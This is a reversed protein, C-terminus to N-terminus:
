PKEQAAVIAKYRPDERLSSLDVMAETQYKTAGLHMCTALTSLAPGRQRLLEQIRVKVLQSDIDAAHLAESRVLLAPVEASKGSKMRYLALLMWGPGDAPSAELQAAQLVAARAYAAGKQQGSHGLVSLSDGLELWALSDDPDLQVAELSAQLAEAHRGLLRLIDTRAQLAASTRTLELSKDITNLAESLRGLQFLVTGLMTFCIARRPAVAAAAQFSELAHTYQGHLNYSIGLEHYASWYNPRARLLRRYAQEADQWRNLGTYFQAQTRMTFPNSPDLALAQSMQDLANGTLGTYNLYIALATHGRVSEPDLVLATEANARGLTLFSADHRNGYLHLYTGALRAHAEAFHPDLDVALRYKEIAADVGADNPQKRLAEATQFATFAQANDTGTHSRRDDPRFHNLDLLATAAHVAEAPLSFLRSRAAELTRARLIQHTSPDMVQLLVRFLDGEVVGSAALVLNAGLSLRLDDLQAPLSVDAALTQPAIYFNHDLAEARTLENAIADLVGTLTSRMALDSGPPWSLLAVFRKPPLPHFFDRITDHKWLAGASVSCFAAGASIALTRRTIQPPRSVSTRQSSLTGQLQAFARLRRDPSTSLLGEVGRIMEGSVHCQRLSSSPHVSHGDRSSTPRSGTVVQHLVVGLAFLDSAEDPPDGRLLEPALYGPTGAVIVAGSSFASHRDFVTPEAERLRALGFDMLAVRFPAITTDLMVNGPKIDRHIIGGAHLAAVAHVLESCVLERDARSLATSGRLRAALTEGALLKMTLFLFAPSPDDCRFIEYIPCLNPHTVKRALLVEQEFRRSHAADAAIEPRIVKLAVHTGHLWLDEVEYVEGMGGRALFGVVIFRHAIVDGARFRPSGAAAHQWADVTSVVVSQHPASSGFIPAALFSGAQAHEALLEETLRRLMPQNRCAQDLFAPREKAPLGLAAEFLEEVSHPLNAM